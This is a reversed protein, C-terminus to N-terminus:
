ANLFAKLKPYNASQKYYKAVLAQGAQGIQYRYAEDDLTKVITEAAAAPNKYDILCINEQDKVGEIGIANTATSVVPLGLAMALLTKTPVGAGFDAPSIFLAQETMLAYPDDVFGLVEINPRSQFIEGGRGIILLKTDPKQTHILPWIRECFFSLGQRNPPYYLNGIFVLNNTKPAYHYNFFSDDLAGRIVTIAPAPRNPFKATWNSLIYDRDRESVISFGDALGLLRLEYNKVRKTELSYILRWFGHAKQSADRYNLSIADNFCLLLRASRDTVAKLREIYRGFRLTHFHIARYNANNKKLWKLAAPCFFYASQLPRPSFIGVLSRAYRSLQPLKFYFIAAGTIQRLHDLTPATIKEDSVILLDVSFDAALAKLEGLIRERTGDVAPYPPRTLVFLIKNKM